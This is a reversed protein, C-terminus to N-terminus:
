RKDGEARGMIEAVRDAVVRVAARSGAEPATALWLARPEVADLPFLRRLGPSRLGWPETLVCIGRGAAAAALLAPMSSSRFAVHVGPRTSLWKAEPLASLEGGPILVDHGALAAEDAPTGRRRVYVESAFLAFSLRAVRRVRVDAERTPTVRLSLDAEGRAVDVPRNGGHIEILLDPYRDRLDLLGEEVLFVGLAETTAIRM